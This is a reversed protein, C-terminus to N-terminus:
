MLRPAANGSREEREIREAISMCERATLGFSVHFGDPTELTVMYVSPDTSREIITTSVPYVIRLSDDRYRLRLAREAVNPLTMVLVRLCDAPLNLLFEHGAADIYGMRISSGDPQIELRGLAAVDIETIM